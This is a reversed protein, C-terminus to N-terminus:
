LLLVDASFAQNSRLNLAFDAKRDGDVGSTVGGGQRLLPTILKPLRLL